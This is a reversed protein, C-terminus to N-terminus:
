IPGRAPVHPRARPRRVSRISSASCSRSEHHAAFARRDPAVAVDAGAVVVRFGRPQIFIDAQQGRRGIDAGVEGVQEVRQGPVRALLGVAVEQDRRVPHAPADDFADFALDRGRASPASPRIRSFALAKTSSCTISASYRADCAPTRTSTTTRPMQASRGVPRGAVGLVDDDPRDEAPEEFVRSNNVEAGDVLEPDAAGVHHMTIEVSPDFHHCLHLIRPQGRLQVVDELGRHVGRGAAPLEADVSVPRRRRVLALGHAVMLHRQHFAAPM